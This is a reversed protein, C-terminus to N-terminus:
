PLLTQLLQIQSLVHMVAALRFSQRDNNSDSAHVRQVRQRKTKHGGGGLFFDESMKEPSGFSSSIM